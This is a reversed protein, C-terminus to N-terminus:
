LNRHKSGLGQVKKGLGSRQVKFESGTKKQKSDKTRPPLSAEELLLMDKLIMMTATGHALLTGKRDEVFSEALCLTRGVKLSKGKAILLGDSAPALYNVKLEVTTLGLGEELMPYVAWFASADVISAYVGGHVVGFPQLHKPHVQIKLLSEGISLSSVEMSLLDFYPSRNVVKKVKRIYEPNLQRMFVGHCKDNIM